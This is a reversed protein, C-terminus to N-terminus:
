PKFVRLPRETRTSNDLHCWTPTCSPDEMWLDYKKLIDPNALIKRILTHEPDYIDVARGSMHLSKKAAGKVKANVASPRFGSSVKVNTIGLEQLLQNVKNLLVVANDKIAKTLEESNLREPYKGSASIYDELNIVEKDRRRVGCNCSKWGPSNDMPRFYGSCIHCFRNLTM